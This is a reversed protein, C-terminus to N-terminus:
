LHTAVLAVSAAVTVVALATGARPAFRWGWASLAALPPLAPVLHRAHSWTRGGGDLSPAAFVATLAM